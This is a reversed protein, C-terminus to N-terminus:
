LPPAPGSTASCSTDPATSSSSTVARPIITNAPAPDFKGGFNASISSYRSQPNLHSGYEQEKKTIGEGERRDTERSRMLRARSRTCLDRRRCEGQKTGMLEYVIMNEM